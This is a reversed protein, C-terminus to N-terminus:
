ADNEKHEEMWIVSLRMVLEQHTKPVRANLRNRKNYAKIFAKAEDDTKINDFFYENKPMEIEGHKVNEMELEEAEDQLLKMKAKSEDDLDATKFDVEDMYQPVVFIKKIAGFPETDFTKVVHPSSDGDDYKVVCYSEIDGYLEVVGVGSKFTSKNDWEKKPIAPIKLYKCVEQENRIM